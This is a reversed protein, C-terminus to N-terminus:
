QNQGSVYKKDNLIISDSELPIHNQGLKTICYEPVILRKGFFNTLHRLIIRQYKKIINSEQWMTAASILDM